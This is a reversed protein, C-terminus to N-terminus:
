AGVRRRGRAGIMAVLGSELLALSAPEPTAAASPDSIAFVLTSRNFYRDPPIRDPTISLIGSAQVEKTFLPVRPTAPDFLTAFGQVLGTLTFPTTFVHGEPFDGAVFPVTSVQFTADVFGHDTTGDITFASEDFLSGARFSYVQDLAVTQGVNVGMAGSPGATPSGTVRFGPATLLFSSHFGDWEIGLSGGTLLLPDATVMRPMAIFAAAIAVRVMRM